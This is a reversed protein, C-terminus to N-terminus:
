LKAKVTQRDLVGRVTGSEDVVVLVDSKAFREIAVSIPEDSSVSLDHTWPIMVDRVATGKRGAVVGALRGGDAVAYTGAHPLAADITLRGDFPKAWEGAKAAGVRRLSIATRRARSAYVAVAIAGVILWL